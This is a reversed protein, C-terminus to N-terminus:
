RGWSATSAMRELQRKVAERPEKSMLSLFAIGREACIVTSAIQTVGDQEGVSGSLSFEMSGDSRRREAFEFRDVDAAFYFFNARIKDAECPTTCRSEARECTQVNLLPLGMDDAPSAAFSDASEHKVHWKHPVDLVFSGATTQAACAALIGCLGCLLLTNMVRM